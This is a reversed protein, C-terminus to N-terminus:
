FVPAQMMFVAVMSAILILFALAAAAMVITRGPDREKKRGPFPSANEFDVPRASFEAPRADVVDTAPLPQAAAQPACEYCAESKGFRIRDGARLRSETVAIGNLRTGNTSGLDVLQYDSGVLRLEAHRGSVSPEDIRIMNEPARGVTVVEDSLDHAVDNILLKPVGATYCKLRAADIRNRQGLVQAGAYDGKGHGDLLRAIKADDRVDIMALRREGISQELRSACDVLALLLVLKEIRHVELALTADRDLRM